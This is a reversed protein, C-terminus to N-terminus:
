QCGICQLLLHSETGGQVVVKKSTTMLLGTHEMIVGTFDVGMGLATTAFVIRVIGDVKVMSQLVISKNHEPTNSHFMAFLKNDSIKPAHQPYSKDGLTYLFHVYLDACM